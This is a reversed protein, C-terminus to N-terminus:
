AEHQGCPRARWCGALLGGAGGGGFRCSWRCQGRRGNTPPSFVTRQGEGAKAMKRESGMHSQTLIPIRFGSYLIRGRAEEAGAVNVPEIPLTVRPPRAKERSIQWGAPCDVIRRSRAGASAKQIGKCISAQQGVAPGEGRWGAKRVRHVKEQRMGSKDWRRQGCCMRVRGVSGDCSAPPSTARQEWWGQEQERAGAQRWRGTM